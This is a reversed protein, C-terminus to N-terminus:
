KPENVARSFDHGKLVYVVMQTASVVLPTGNFEQPFNYRRAFFMAPEGNQGGPSDAGSIRVPPGTIKAQALSVGIRSAAREKPRTDFGLISTVVGALEPPVHIDGVMGRYVGKASQYLKVNAPFAALLDGLKGRFCITRSSAQRVVVSLNHKAGYSEVKDLDEASAGFHASLEAKSLGVREHLPKASQEWAWQELKKRDCKSRLLVTITAIESKDV